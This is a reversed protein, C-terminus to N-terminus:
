GSEMDTDPFFSGRKQASSVISTTIVPVLAKVGVFFEKWSSLLSGNLEDSIWMINDDEILAGYEQIAYLRLLAIDKLYNEKREFFEEVSIEWRFDELRLDLNDALDNALSLILRYNDQKAGCQHIYRRTLSSSILAKIPNRSSMFTQIFTWKKEARHYIAVQHLLPDYTNTLWVHRESYYKKDEQYKSYYFVIEEKAPFELAHEEHGEISVFSPLDKRKFFHCTTHTANKLLCDHKLCYGVTTGIEQYQSPNYLCNDCTYPNKM